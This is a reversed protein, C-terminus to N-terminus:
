SYQQLTDMKVCNKVGFINMVDKEKGFKTENMRKNKEVQIVMVVTMM